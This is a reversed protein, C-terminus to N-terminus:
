FILKSLMGELLLQWNRGSQKMGYLPKLLKHAYQKHGEYNKINLFPAENPLQLYFDTDIETNVYANSIDMFQLEYQKLTAEALIIRLSEYSLTSAFTENFTSEPQRDGRAVIRAKCTGDRKVTLVWMTKVIRKRDYRSIIEKPNIEGTNHLMINNYEKKM